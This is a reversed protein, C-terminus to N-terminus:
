LDVCLAVPEELSREMTMFGIDSQLRSKYFSGGRGKAM